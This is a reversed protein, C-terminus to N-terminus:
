VDPPTDEVGCSLWGASWGIGGEGGIEREEVM